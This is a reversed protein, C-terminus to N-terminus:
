VNCIRFFLRHSPCRHQLITFINVAALKLHLICSFVCGEDIIIVSDKDIAKEKSEESM